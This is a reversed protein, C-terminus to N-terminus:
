SKNHSQPLVSSKYKVNLSLCLLDIKLEKKKKKQKEPLEGGLAIQWAWDHIQKKVEM